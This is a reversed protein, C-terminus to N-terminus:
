QGLLSGPAATLRKDLSLNFQQGQAFQQSLWFEFDPLGGPRPQKDLTFSNDQAFKIPTFKRGSCVVM